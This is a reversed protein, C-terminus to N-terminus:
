LQGYPYFTNKTDHKLYNKYYILSSLTYYNERENILKSILSQDAESQELLIKPSNNIIDKNIRNKHVISKIYSDQFIPKFLQINAGQINKSITLVENNLGSINEIISLKKTHLIIYKIIDSLANQETNMDLPITSISDFIQQVFLFYSLPDITESSIQDLNKPPNSDNFKSFYELLFLFDLNKTFRKDILNQGFTSIIGSSQDIIQRILSNTNDNFLINLQKNTLEIKTFDFQSIGEKLAEVETISTTLEAFDCCEKSLQILNSFQDIM